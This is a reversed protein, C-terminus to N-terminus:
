RLSPSAQLPGPDRLGRFRPYNPFLIGRMEDRGLAESHFTATSREVYHNYVRLAEDLREESMPEFEIAM